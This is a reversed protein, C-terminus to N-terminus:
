VPLLYANGFVLDRPQFPSTISKGASRWGNDETVIISGAEIYSIFKGSMNKSWGEAVFYPRRESTYLQLKSKEFDINQPLLMGMNLFLTTQEYDISEACIDTIKYINLGQSARAGLFFLRNTDQAHQLAHLLKQGDDGEDMALYFTFKTVKTEKELEGRKEFVTMEPVSFLNPPLGPMNYRAADISAHIHQSSHTYVYPYLQSAAQPSEMLKILQEGTIYERKKVAKYREKKSNDDAVDLEVLKDLLYRQPCPLYGEPLLNSLSIHLRGEKVQAVLKSAKDSSYYDAYMHVLAGFLKQSDPLQTLRGTLSLNVKYTQVM